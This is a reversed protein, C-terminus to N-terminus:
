AGQEVQKGNALVSQLGFGAMLVVHALLFSLVCAMVDVNVLSAEDLTHYFEEKTIVPVHDDATAQQRVFAAVQYFVSRPDRLEGRDFRAQFEDNFATWLSDFRQLRRHARLCSLLRYGPFSMTKSTFVDEMMQGMLLRMHLLAALQEGSMDSGYAIVCLVRTALECLDHPTFRPHAALWLDVHEVISDHMTRVNELSYPPRFAQRLLKHKAGSHVGVAHGLFGAFVPGLGLDRQRGYALQNRFFSAMDKPASLVYEKFGVYDITYIGTQNKRDLWRAGSFYVYEWKWFFLFTLFVVFASLFLLISM